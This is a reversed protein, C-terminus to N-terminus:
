GIRPTYGVIKRIKNILWEIRRVGILLIGLYYFHFMPFSRLGLRGLDIYYKHFVSFKKDAHYALWPFSYIALDSLIKKSAGENNLDIAKAINVIGRMMSLRADITYEGPTYIGQESASHGFDPKEDARCLAIIEPIYAGDYKLIINGVLHLQYFLTGDFESTELELAPKRAITLGALACSRRYFFALADLGAPMVREDPFYKVTQVVNNPTSEFWGYGRLVVGINSHRFLIDDISKLAGNCLVDDNGLFVCYDGKAIRLLQRLNADFGLNVANEHYVILDGYKQKYGNLVKRIDEREPSYDECVVIEFLFEKQSLVSDLVQSLYKARNYSPICVSLKNKYPM